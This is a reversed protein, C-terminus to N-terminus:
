TLIIDLTKKIIDTTENIDKLIFIDENASIYSWDINKRLKLSNISTNVNLYIHDIKDQNEILLEIANSNM